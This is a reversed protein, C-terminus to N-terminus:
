RALRRGTGFWFRLKPRPIAQLIALATAEDETNLANGAVPGEGNMLWPARVRLAKRLLMLQRGSVTDGDSAIWGEVTELTVGCKRALEAPSVVGAATQAAHLRGAFGSM